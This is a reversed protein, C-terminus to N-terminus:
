LFFPEFRLITQDRSATRRPDLNYDPHGKVNNFGSRLIPSIARDTVFIWNHMNGGGGAKVFLISSDTIASLNLHDM